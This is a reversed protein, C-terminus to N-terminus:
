LGLLTQRLTQRQSSKAPNERSQMQPLRTRKVSCAITTSLWGRNGVEANCRDILANDSLNSLQDAFGYNAELESRTPKNANNKNM